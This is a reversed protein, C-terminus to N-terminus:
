TAEADIADKRDLAMRAAKVLGVADMVGKGVAEIPDLSMRYPNNQQQQDEVGAGANSQQEMAQDALPKHSIEYEADEGWNLRILPDFVQESLDNIIQVIWSDISAYFAALPIRKGAWAGSGDSSIVDDPIEQGHRIEDDLDKPYQLIHQPNSAVTARTLKWKNEGSDGMPEYPLTVVGGAELQEVIQRAIDANPVPTAQGEIWTEGPPYELECGGYADKHMFLRRTDLGGGNFCKDAWPSYAGLLNSTGYKEGDEGNFSHFWAYPFPLDIHGVGEIRSVRVGYRNTGQMLLRCDSAHRPELKDIEVLNYQSLRLTVEGASWGWIQSRLIAPLFNKWIRQLQRHIFEGIEARSCQVGEVWEGGKKYGFSAGSIPAARTALNLKVGPDILMARVTDFTFPPLDRPTTFWHRNIPKYGGTKVKGSTDVKVMKTAAAKKPM